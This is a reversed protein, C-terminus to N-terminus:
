VFDLDSRRGSTSKHTRLEYPACPQLDTPVLPADLAIPATEHGRLGL